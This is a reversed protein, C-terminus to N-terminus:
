SAAPGNQWAMWCSLTTIPQARAVTYLLLPVRDSPKGVIRCYTHFHGFPINLETVNM